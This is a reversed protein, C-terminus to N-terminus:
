LQHNITDASMVNGVYAKGIDSFKKGKTWRVRHLLAGGDVVSVNYQGIADGTISEEDPMVVNRLSPKDPKRMMGEKFSLVWLHRVSEKMGRGETLGGRSKISRM